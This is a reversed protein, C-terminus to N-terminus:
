ADHLLKCTGCWACDEMSCNALDQQADLKCGVADLQLGATAFLIIHLVVHAVSRSELQLLLGPLITSRAYAVLDRVCPSRGILM